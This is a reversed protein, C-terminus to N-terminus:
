PTSVSVRKVTVEAKANIVSATFQDGSREGKVQATFGHKLKELEAPADDLTIQTDKNVLFTLQETGMTLVLKGEGAVLVKGLYSHPDSEQGRENGDLQQFVALVLPVCVSAIKFLHPWM